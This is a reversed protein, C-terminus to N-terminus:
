KILALMFLLVVGNVAVLLENRSLVSRGRSSSQNQLQCVWRTAMVVYLLDVLMFGVDRSWQHWAGAGRLVNTM